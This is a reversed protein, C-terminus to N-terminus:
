NSINVKLKKNMVYLVGFRKSYDKGTVNDSTIIRINSEVDNLKELIKNIRNIEIPIRPDNKRFLSIKLDAIASLSEIQQDRGLGEVAIVMFGISNQKFIRAVAHLFLPNKDLLPYREPLHGASNFLARHISVEHDKMESILNNVKEEVTGDASKLSTLFEHTEDRIGNIVSTVIYLFEEPLLFGSHFNVVFIIRKNDRDFYIDINIKLSIPLTANNIQIMNEPNSTWSAQDAVNNYAIRQGMNVILGATIKKNGKNKAYRDNICHIYSMGIALKHGGSEGKLIIFANQGLGTDQKDKSNIEIIKNLENNLSFKTTTKDDDKAALKEYRSVQTHLSPYIEILSGQLPTNRKIKYPHRGLVHRQNRSKTVEIVKYQYDKKIWDLKIVVDSLYEIESNYNDLLSEPSNEILYIGLLGSWTILKFIQHINSRHMKDQTFGNLSDIVVCILRFSNANKSCFRDGEILRLIQKYRYWFIDDEKQREKGLINPVLSPFILIKNYKEDELKILNQYLKIFDPERLNSPSSALEANDYESRIIDLNLERHAISESCLTLIPDSPQELSCYAYLCKLENKSKDDCVISQNLIEMALTTKGVGPPGMIVVNLGSNPTKNSLNVASSVETFKFSPANKFISNLRDNKKGRFTGEDLLYALNENKIHFEYAVPKNKKGNILMNGSVIGSIWEYFKELDEKSSYNIEITWEGDLEIFDIFDRVVKGEPIRQIIRHVSLEERPNFLKALMSVRHFIKKVEKVNEFGAESALAVWPFTTRGFSKLRLVFAADLVRDMKIQRISPEVVLQLFENKNHEIGFLHGKYEIAVDLLEIGMQRLPNKWLSLLKLKGKVDRIVRHLDSTEEDTSNAFSMSFDEGVHVILLKGLEDIECGNLKARIKGKSKNRDLGEIWEPATRHFSNDLEDAFVLLASLWGLRILGYHDLYVNEIYGKKELSKAASYNHAACIIAICKVLQFDSFGLENYKNMLGLASRYAHGDGEGESESLEYEEELFAHLQSNKKSSNQKPKNYIKGFDHYIISSLLVYSEVQSLSVMKTKSLISCVQTEVNILHAPGTLSGKDHGLLPIWHKYAMKEINIFEESLNHPQSDNTSLQLKDRLYNQMDPEPM